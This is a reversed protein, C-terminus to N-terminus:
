NYVEADKGRAVGAKLGNVQEFGEGEGSGFRKEFARVRGYGKTSLHRGESSSLNEAEILPKEHKTSLPFTLSLLWTRIVGSM